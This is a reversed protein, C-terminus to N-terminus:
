RTDDDQDEDLDEVTAAADENDGDPDLDDLREGLEEPPMDLESAVDEQEEILPDTKAPDTDLDDQYGQPVYDDSM